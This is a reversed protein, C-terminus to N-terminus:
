DPPSANLRRAWKSLRRNIVIQALNLVLLGLLPRSAAASVLPRLGLQRAEHMRRVTRVGVVLLLCQLALSVVAYPVMVLM